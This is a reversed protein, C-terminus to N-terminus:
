REVKVNEQNRTYIRQLLGKPDRSVAYRVAMTEGRLVLYGFGQLSSMATNQTRFGLAATDSMENGVVFGSGNEKILRALHDMSSTMRMATGAVLACVGDGRKERLLQTLRTSEPDGMKMCDDLSEIVVVLHSGKQHAEIQAMTEAMNNMAVVHPLDAFMSMSEGHLCLKLSEPKNLAMLGALLSMLVVRRESVKGLMGFVWGAAVPVGVPDLTEANLGTLLTAPPMMAGLSSLLNELLVVQPQEIIKRAPVMGANKQQIKEVLAPMNAAVAVQMEYGPDSRMLGRGKIGSPQYRMGIAIQYESPDALELALTQGISNSLKTPISNISPATFVFHVKMSGGDRAMRIVQPLFDDLHQEAFEPYNDIVVVIRPLDHLNEKTKREQIESSLYALLRQLREEEEPLIVAGVHPIKELGRLRWDGFDLLYFWIDKPTLRYASSLVISEIVSTKGTRPAGLVLLNGNGMNMDVLRQEQRWPLDAVGLPCDGQDLLSELDIREPLAPLWLQMPKYGIQGAAQRIQEIAEVMETRDSASAPVNSWIKHRTGDMDVSFIQNVGGEPLSATHQVGGYASQFLTFIEGNGVMLYGLGPRTLYAAENRGLMEKSDMTDQVKLCIRFRSNSWIQDSVVGSPKQTALILSVGLSRGVRATSVLEPLFEPITKSLEAFEDVIIVLRPLAEPVNGKRQMAHYDDIHNVGVRAFLRQRKELESKIAVLARMASAADLNTVMGCVHPLGAFVNSMGGGKFDVLMFNLENPSIHAALSVLLAQITESKGSGTTGAILGHPGHAKEHLDFMLPRQGQTLGLPVAMSNLPHNHWSQVISAANLPFLDSLRVLSPLVAEKKENGGPRFPAMSQAFRAAEAMTTVEPSFSLTRTPPGALYANALQGGWGAEVVTRCIQPARSRDPCLVLFCVKQTERGSPRAMNLLAPMTELSLLSIDPIFVIWQNSSRGIEATLEAAMATVSSGVGIYRRGDNWVHPLWRLWNWTEVDKDTLFAAIKVNAPSHLAATQVLLSAMMECSAPGCLAVSESLAISVAGSVQSYKSAVDKAKGILPDPTLADQEPTQVTFKPPTQGSGIRVLLYDQDMPTRAWLGPNPSQPNPWFIIKGIEPHTAQVANNHTYVLGDLIREQQSLFATYKEERQQLNLRYRKRDAFFKWIGGGVSLLMMPLSILM